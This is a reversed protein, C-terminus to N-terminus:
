QPAQEVLIAVAEAIDAHADLDAQRAGMNEASQDAIDRLVKAARRAKDTLEASM